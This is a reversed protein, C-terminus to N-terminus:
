LITRSKTVNGEKSGTLITTCFLIHIFNINYSIKMQTGTLNIVTFNELYKEYM